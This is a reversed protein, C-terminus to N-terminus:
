GLGRSMLIFPGVEGARAKQVGGCRRGPRQNQPHTGQDQKRRQAREVLRVYRAISTPTIPSDFFVSGVFGCPSLRVSAMGILNSAGRSHIRHTRRVQQRRTPHPHRAWCRPTVPRSSPGRASEFPVDTYGIFITSSICHSPAHRALRNAKFEHILADAM